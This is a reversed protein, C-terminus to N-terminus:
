GTKGAKPENTTGGDSDDQAKRREQRNEGDPDTQTNKVNKDVQMSPANLQRENNKLILTILHFQYGNKIIWIVSGIIWIVSGHPLKEKQQV